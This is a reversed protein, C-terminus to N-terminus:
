SNLSKYEEVEVFQLLECHDINPHELSFNEQIEDIIKLVDSDEELVISFALQLRVRKKVPKPEETKM